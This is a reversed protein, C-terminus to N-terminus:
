AVEACVPGFGSKISEPVTLSRGCRACRGEHWLEVKSPFGIPEGDAGTGTVRSWLWKWARMSPADDRMKVSKTRVYKGDMRVAGSAHRLPAAGFIAGIYTWSGQDGNDPGTLVKVFIPLNDTPAGPKPQARRLKFTFRGGTETNLVTFVANGGLMFQVTDALNEFRARTGPESTEPDSHALVPGSDEAPVQTGPTSVAVSVPAVALQPQTPVEKAQKSFKSRLEELRAM